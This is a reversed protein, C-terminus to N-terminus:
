HCYATNSIPKLSQIDYTHEVSSTAQAARRALRSGPEGGISLQSGATTVAHAADSTCHWGTTRGLLEGFRQVHRQMFCRGAPFQEAIQEVGALHRDATFFAEAGARRM